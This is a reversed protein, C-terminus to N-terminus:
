RGDSSWPKVTETFEKVTECNRKEGVSMELDAQRQGAIRLEAM